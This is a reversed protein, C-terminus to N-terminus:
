GERGARLIERNEASYAGTSQADSKKQSGTRPRTPTASFLTPVSDPQAHV